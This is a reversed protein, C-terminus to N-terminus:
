SDKQLLYSSMKQEAFARLTEETMGPEINLGRAKLNKYAELAFNWADKESAIVLRQFAEREEESVFPNDSYACAYRLALEDEIESRSKKSDARAHGVEHMISLMGGPSKVLEMLSSRPGPLVILSREPDAHLSKGPVERFKWYQPLLLGMDLHVDPFSLEIAVELADSWPVERATYILVCFGEREVITREEGNLGEKMENYCCPFISRGGHM